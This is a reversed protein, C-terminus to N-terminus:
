GQLRITANNRRGKPRGPGPPNGRPFPKGRPKGGHSSSTEASSSHSKGDAPLDRHTDADPSAHSSSAGANGTRSDFDDPMGTRISPDGTRRFHGGSPSSPVPESVPGDSAHFHDTDFVGM